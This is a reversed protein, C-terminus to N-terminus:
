SRRSPGAPDRVLVDKALLWGVLTVGAPLPVQPSWACALQLPTMGAQLKRLLPVLEVGGLYALPGDLGPHSVTPKMVVFEGDLCPLDVIDLRPSLMVPGDSAPSISGSHPAVTPPRRSSAADARDRWFSGGRQAAVAAYQTASWGRHRAAADELTARYFRLAAERSEVKRLLTNVVVAGALSTQIAKQVGSSSLPDLALAADGVKISQATVSEPALWPTAETARVRGVLRVDRCGDLLGSGGILKLFRDGITGALGTRYRELDLFVFTNYTSDPLPVGWYWEDPGAEIRPQVPLNSGVWYGHLALTRCGGHRSRAIPGASRGSADALFAVHLDVRRGNANIVLSWGSEDCRRERVVAPQLVRVGLARARDLLLADFRGRDVLLGQEAADRREQLGEDWKVQVGSVRLFCAAEVAERVGITELLPLVGPSLSEGLHSRPFVSREVLCVDHGLQALRVALTSGAPGSGVICIRSRGDQPRAM